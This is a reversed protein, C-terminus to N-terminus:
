TFVFLCAFLCFVVVLFFFFWLILDTLLIGGHDRNSNRGQSGETIVTVQFNIIFYVREEM